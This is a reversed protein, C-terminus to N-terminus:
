LERLREADRDVRLGQLAGRTDFVRDVEETMGSTIQNAADGLKEALVDLRDCAVRPDREDELRARLSREVRIPGVRLLFPAGEVPQDRLETPQEVVHLLVEGILGALRRQQFR